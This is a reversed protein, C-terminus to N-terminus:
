IEESLERITILDQETLLQRKDESFLKNRMFRLNVVEDSDILKAM